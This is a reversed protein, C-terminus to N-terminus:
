EGAGKPFRSNLLNGYSPVELVAIQSRPVSVLATRKLLFLTAQSSDRNILWTGADGGYVGGGTTTLPVQPFTGDEVWLVTLRSRFVLYGCMNLVAASLALYAAWNAPNKWAPTM